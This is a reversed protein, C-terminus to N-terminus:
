KMINKSCFSGTNLKIKFKPKGNRTSKMRMLKDLLINEFFFNPINTFDVLSEFIGFLTGVSQSIM